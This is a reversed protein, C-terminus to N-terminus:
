YMSLLYCNLYALIGAKFAVNVLSTFEAILCVHQESFDINSSKIWTLLSGLHPSVCSSELLFRLSCKSKLEYVRIIKGSM